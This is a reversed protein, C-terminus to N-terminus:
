RPGRGRSLPCPSPSRAVHGDCEHIMGALAVPTCKTREDRKLSRLIEYGNGNPMVKAV